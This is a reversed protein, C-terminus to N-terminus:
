VLQRTHPHTTMTSFGHSMAGCNRGAADFKNHLHIFIQQYFYQNVTEGEPVFERHVMIGKQDFFFHDAHGQNKIKVHAGKQNSTIRCDEM